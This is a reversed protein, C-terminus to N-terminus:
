IFDPETEVTSLEAFESTLLDAQFQLIDDLM